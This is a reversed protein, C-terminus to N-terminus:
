QFIIEGSSIHPSVPTNDKTLLYRKNIVITFESNMTQFQKRIPNESLLIMYTVNKLDGDSLVKMMVSDYAEEYDNKNSDSLYFRFADKQYDFFTVALTTSDTIQESQCSFFFSISFILIALTIRMYFGKRKGPESSFFSELV